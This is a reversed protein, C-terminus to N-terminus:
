NFFLTRCLVRVARCRASASRRLSPGPTAKEVSLEAGERFQGRVFGGGPASEALSSPPANVARGQRDRRANMTRIRIQLTMGRLGRRRDASGGDVHRQASVAASPARRTGELIAGSNIPWCRPARMARFLPFGPFMQRVLVSPSLAARRSARRPDASHNIRRFTVRSPASSLSALRDVRQAAAGIRRGHPHRVARLHHHPPAALTAIAAACRRPYSSWCFRRGFAWRPLSGDAVSCRMLPPARDKVHQPRDRDRVAAGGFDRLRRRFRRSRCATLSAPHDVLIHILEVYGRAVM